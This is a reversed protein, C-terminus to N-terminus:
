CGPRDRRLHSGCSRLRWDRGSLRRHHHRAAAHPGRAHAAESPQADEKMNSRDLLKEMAADDYSIVPTVGEFQSLCARAVSRVTEGTSDSVIYVVNEFTGVDVAKFEFDAGAATIRQWDAM